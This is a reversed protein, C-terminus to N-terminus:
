KGGHLDNIEMVDRVITDSSSRSYYDFFVHNEGKKMTMKRMLGSMTDAFSVVCTLNCFYHCCSMFFYLLFTFLSNM